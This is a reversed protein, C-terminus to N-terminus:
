ALSEIKVVGELLANRSAYLWIYSIILLVGMVINLQWYASIGQTVYGIFLTSLAMRVFDAYYVWSKREFLAGNHLVAWMILGAATLKEWTVLNNYQLMFALVGATILLYQFFAYTNVIFPVQTDYKEYNERSVDPISMMGGQEAPRWGPKYFLVKFKDSWKPTVKLQEYITQFNSLNAWIPNWSNLPKTIGYVPREEEWKFTGFMMDWVIFVGAYNKDIYKPNRGHHVRHHSPTNMVYELVGMKNVLETHIWFQYTLNIASVWALMFTDFGMLALPIYLWFTFLSQLWSQRLAVSLNYEESQHHVVHGSWLLNIEHSVRHAWYYCLDYLIFLIVFSWVSYDIKFFAFNHYVLEYFGLKVVIGFVQQSSGANINTISDNLRYLGTKRFNDVLLEIGMLFFFLPVSFIIPNIDM